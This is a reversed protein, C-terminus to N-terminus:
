YHRAELDSRVVILSVASELFVLSSAITEVDTETLAASASDVAQGVLLSDYAGAGGSPLRLHILFTPCERGCATLITFIGSLGEISAAPPKEPEPETKSEFPEQGQGQHKGTWAAGLVSRSAEVLSMILGELLKGIEDESATADPSQNLIELARHEVSSGHVNVLETLFEAVPRLAVKSGNANTLISSSLTGLEQILSM